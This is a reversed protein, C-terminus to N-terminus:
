KAAPDRKFLHDDQQNPQGRGDTNNSLFYIKGNHFHADRVRGIGTAAETIKRTEPDFMLLASGRLASMYLKGGHYVMGSPAWTEEGSHIIPQEMGEKSEDGSIVPWGYNKGPEIINIEDQASQGHESAYMTGEEDWALGQPNRHGYSYVYSGPFPNDDPVSGDLGIRLIKGALSEVDQALEPQSADGTTAYLKGDPGIALRGGHHVTGSPIRDLLLDTEKWVEGELTLEVIRNYTGGDEYTYYAFAQHSENFDPKLVFGLLGAESANSLQKELKVGQRTKEGNMLEVVSGPRESIYFTDEFRSISWPVELSGTVAELGGVKTEKGEEDAVQVTEQNGSCGALLMALVAFWKKM